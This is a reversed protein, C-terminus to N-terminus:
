WVIDDYRPPPVRQRRSSQKVGDGGKSEEGNNEEGDEKGGAGPQSVEDDGGVTDVAGNEGDEEHGTDITPILLDDDDDGDGGAVLDDAPGADDGDVDAALCEDRLSCDMTCTDHPSPQPNAGLPALAVLFGSEDPTLVRRCAPCLSLLRRNKAANAKASASACWERHRWLRVLLVASSDCLLELQADDDTAIADTELYRM